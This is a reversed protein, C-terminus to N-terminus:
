AADDILWVGGACVALVEPSVWCLLSRRQAVKNNVMKGVVRRACRVEGRGGRLALGIWKGSSAGPSSSTGARCLSVFSADAISTSRMQALRSLLEVEEGGGERVCEGAYM